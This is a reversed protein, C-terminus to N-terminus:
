KVRVIKAMFFGDTGDKHPTLTLRGDQSSYGCSTFDSLAFGDNAEIFSDVVEGNEKPNLTCTSYLLEGGVKLYKASAKLIEGQLKPLSDLAERSKYRLDPKKGLVGLGSCPVDCIVKDAKGFLDPNGVLADVAEATISNLGLRMAGETILSLKSEHLDYSYIRAKDGSLIAALFSKGGPCSCTDIIVDGARPSLAVASIASARDQVFFHGESFGSAREPNFSGLIRLSGEVAGSPTAAIGQEGLALALSDPTARLTNVTIDTYKSENFTLLLRECEEEGYLSIFLKVTHLPFSYKVSLFRAANKKRDPLPLSDKNRVANRLLANVFAREGSGRALKVTENVAAFDPISRMDRIQCLGLRLINKTYLDIKEISRGSLAAIYYDYTLKHEVATYFLATLAAREEGSLGDTSHSSLSLNAYKEGAEYENLLNLAIRRINM